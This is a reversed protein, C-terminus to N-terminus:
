TTYEQDSTCLSDYIRTSSSTRGYSCSHLYIPTLLISEGHTGLGDDLHIAAGVTCCFILMFVARNLLDRLVFRNVVITAAVDRQTLFCMLLLATHCSHMHPLRLLQAYSFTLQCRFAVRFVDPLVSFWPFRFPFGYSLHLLFCLPVM